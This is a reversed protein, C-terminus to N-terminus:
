AHGHHARDGIDTNKVTKLLGNTTYM